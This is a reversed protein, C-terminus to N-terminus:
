GGGGLGSGVVNGDDGDDDGDAKGFGDGNGTTGAFWTGVSVGMPKNASLEAPIGDALFNLATNAGNPRSIGQSVTMVTSEAEMWVGM